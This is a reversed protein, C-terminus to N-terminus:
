GRREKRTKIVQHGNGNHIQLVDAHVDIMGAQRETILVPPRWRGDKCQAKIYPIAGKCLDRIVLSAKVGILDCAKKFDRIEDTTGRFNVQDNKKMSVIYICHV